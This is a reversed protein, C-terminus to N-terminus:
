RKTHIFLEGWCGLPVRALCATLFPKFDLLWEWGALGFTGTKVSLLKQHDPFVEPHNIWPLQIMRQFLFFRRGRTWVTRYPM